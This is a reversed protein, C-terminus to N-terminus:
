PTGWKAKLYAEVARRDSLVLNSRFSILEHFYGILGLNAADPRGGLTDVDIRDVTGLTTYPSAEAGNLYIHQRQFTTVHCGELGDDTLWYDAGSQIQGLFGYTANSGGLVFGEGAQGFIYNIANSHDNTLNAVLFHTWESTFSVSTLGLVDDGGDFLVGPLSNQINVKYLPKKAATSQTAASGGALHSRWSAVAAGDALGQIDVADYWIVPSLALIRAETAAVVAAPGSSGGRGHPDGLSLGLYSHNRM